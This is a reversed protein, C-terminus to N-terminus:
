GLITLVGVGTIFGTMVSHSVFHLFRGFNFVGMLAVFIGTLVTVAVLSQLSDEGGGRM